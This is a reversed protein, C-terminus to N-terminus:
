LQNSYLEAPQNLKVYRFFIDTVTVIIMSLCVRISKIFQEFNNRNVYLDMFCSVCTVYYCVAATINYVSQFRSVSHTDLPIGALKFLLLITGFSRQSLDSESKMKLSVSKLWSLFTHLSHVIFKASTDSTKRHVCTKWTGSALHSQDHPQAVSALRNISQDLVYENIIVRFMRVFRLLSHM